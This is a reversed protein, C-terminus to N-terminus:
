GPRRLAAPAALLSLLFFKGHLFHASLVLKEGIGDDAPHGPDSNVRSGDVQGLPERVEIGGLGHHVTQRLHAMQAGVLVGNGHACGVETLGQGPLAAAEHAAGQVRIRLDHHGDAGGLGHHVGDEGQGVRPILNDQEGGVELVVMGLGDQRVALGDVHGQRGRVEAEVWLDQLVGELLPGLGNQDAIGGVGAALHEGVVLQLENRVQADLVVHVGDHVLHVLMDDIVAM